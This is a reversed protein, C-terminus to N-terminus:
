DESWTQAAVPRIGNVTLLRVTTVGTVEVLRIVREDRYLHSSAVQRATHDDYSSFEYFVGTQMASTILRYYRM